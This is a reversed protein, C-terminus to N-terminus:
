VSTCYFSEFRVTHLGSAHDRTMGKLTIGPVAVGECARQPGALLLRLGECWVLALLREVPSVPASGHPQVPERVDYM